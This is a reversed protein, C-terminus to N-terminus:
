GESGQTGTNLEWDEQFLPELEENLKNIKEKAEKKEAGTESGWCHRPGKKNYSFAGRFM